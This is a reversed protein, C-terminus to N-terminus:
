KYLTPFDKSFSTISNEVFNVVQSLKSNTNKEQNSSTDEENSEEENSQNQDDEEINKKDSINDKDSTNDWGIKKAYAELDEPSFKDKDKDWKELFEWADNVMKWNKLWYAWPWKPVNAMLFHHVIDNPLNFIVKLHYPIYQKVWWEKKRWALKDSDNSERSYIIIEKVLYKLVKELVIKDNLMNDINGLERALEIGRIYTRAHMHKDRSQKYNKLKEKNEEFEKSVEAIKERYVIESYVQDEYVKGIRKKQETFYEINVVKQLRDIEIELLKMKNINQEQTELYNEIVTPKTFIAKIHYLVLNELDDKALPVVPCVYSDWHKKSNKWWCIYYYKSVWSTTGKFKVMNGHHRHEKCHDCKLFESLLYKLEWDENKRQWKQHWKSSESLLKQAEQFMEPTIIPDHSYESKTWEEKPITVSKKKNWIKTSRSKNYYHVWTYEEDKLYSRITGDERSYIWKGVVSDWPKRIKMIEFEKMIQAVTMRQNVYYDFLFKINQAEVENIVPRGDILDYWYKKQQWRGNERNRQIWSHTREQILDRELEAFTWIIGVMAKGFPTSTDISEQTSIYWIDHSSLRDLVTLLLSLSRAVRDLRYVILMDFPKEWSYSAYEIDRFLRRLEPREEISMVGSVSLDQYWFEDWAFEMIDSKNDVYRKIAAIQNEYTEDDEQWKTSVRIYVALRLKKKVIDNINIATSM